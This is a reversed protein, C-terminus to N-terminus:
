KTKPTQKKNRFISDYNAYWNKISYGKKPSMGKGATTKTNNM